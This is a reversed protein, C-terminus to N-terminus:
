KKLIYYYSGSVGNAPYAGKAATVTNVYKDPSAGNYLYYYQGSSNPYSEQNKYTNRNSSTVQEIFGASEYKYNPSTRYENTTYAPYFTYGNLEESDGYSGILYVQTRQM